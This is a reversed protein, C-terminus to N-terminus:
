VFSWSVEKTKQVTKIKGQQSLGNCFKATRIRERCETQQSSAKSISWKEKKNKGAAKEKYTASSLIWWNLHRFREWFNIEKRPIHADEGPNFKLEQLLINGEDKCLPAQQFIFLLWWKLFPFSWPPKSICFFHFTYFVPIQLAVVFM